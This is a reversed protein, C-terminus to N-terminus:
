TYKVLHRAHKVIKNKKTFTFDKHHAMVGFPFTM